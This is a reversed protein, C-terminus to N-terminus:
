EMLRKPVAFKIADKVIECVFHEGPIIEGDVTLAFGKPAKIEVKKCRKYKIIDEFRKDELHKGKKYTSVLGALRFRSIPKVMCFEILGDNNEARPACCYAGGYYKCNAVSALLYKGSENVLENDVYIKAKNKMAAIVSYVLGMNYAMKGGFITKNKINIMTQCACTDLGFNVVNISYRDGIKILDLPVAESNVIESIDAFESEKGYYKVFDNGSGCPYCTIEANEFGVAGNVVENLTGDGGCACFRVRQAPNDTCYEKIFRTADLPAKTVYIEFDGHLNAIANKVKQEGKGNGSTPNVIFITKM